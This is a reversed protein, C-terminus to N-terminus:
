EVKVVRRGNSVAKELGHTKIIEIEEGDTLDVIDIIDGSDNRCAESIFDHGMEKLDFCISAKMM